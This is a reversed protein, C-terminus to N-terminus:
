KLTITTTKKISVALPNWNRTPVAVYDKGDGLRESLSKIASDASTAEVTSLLMWTGKGNHELVVYQRSSGKESDEEAEEVPSEELEEEEAEELLTEEEGDGAEVREKLRQITEERGSM